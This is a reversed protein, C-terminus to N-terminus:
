SSAKAGIRLSFLIAELERLYDRKNFQPAYVFGEVTILERREEDVTSLSVFPGGMKAGQMGYLGHMLYAFRGDLETAQGSPMLDLQEFARQVIMYSGPDPGNVFAATISDRQQVLFPVTFTSDSTYPHRHIFLGEIVNHDLGSGSVIRDRQLWTFHSEQKMVRYGGPIALTLDHAAQVSSVLVKDQERKLRALTRQRQHAEFAESLPGGESQLMRTWTEPDFAAVQVLLQGSAHVDRRSVVAVSDVKGSITALLVSHHGELLSAFHEPACQAVKFRKEPQPMHEMYQELVQRVAAGPEGEWHGKAMVVLVESEGGVALPKRKPADNCALLLGACLLLPLASRHLSM